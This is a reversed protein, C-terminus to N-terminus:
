PTVTRFYIEFNGDKTDTWAVGFASGAGAIAPSFSRDTRCTIREDAGQRVGTSSLTTFYVHRVGGTTDLREDQWVLGYVSGNWGLAVRDSSGVANTVRVPTGLPVGESSLRAFYIEFNGDKFDSWAVGFETGTWVVSPGYASGTTGASLQVDTPTIRSGNADVLSFFIESREACETPSTCMTANWAVGYRNPTAALHAWDTYGDGASVRVDGGQKAGAPSLRAFYVDQYNPDNLNVKTRGRSWALGFESSSANWGIGPIFDVLKGTGVPIEAGTVLQNNSANVLAAYVENSKDDSTDRVDDFAIGFVSAGHAIRVTNAVKADPTLTLPGGVVAGAASIRAFGIRGQFGGSGTDDRWALGYDSGTWALAAFSSTNADNTVRVGEGSLCSACAAGGACDADACDVAGDCDNDQGDGCATEVRGGPCECVRSANCTAGNACGGCDLANGCGDDPTGCEVGLTTCTKPQCQCEGGVCAQNEGCANGCEGCHAQSTGLVVCAGDCYTENVACARISRAALPIRVEPSNEANSVIVLSAGDPGEPAPATYTVLVVTRGGGPILQGVNGLAFAARADGEITVSTLDLTVSGENSLNVLKQSSVGIPLAGFDLSAPDFAIRARSRSVRDGCQCGAVALSLLLFVALSPRHM